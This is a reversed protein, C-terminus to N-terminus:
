DELESSSDLEDEATGKPLILPVLMVATIGGVLKGVIMPMIMEPQVGATFGLHDGFTFGASVSFAVNMVKGRYNMDKLNKFTPINNALTSLFGAAAVDNMGFKEGIKTLPKNLLKTIVYIMPFAGALVIGISGIIQFGESLSAMGPIIVIGTLEEAVSAALGATLVAIVIKGFVNFIKIIIDQIKWLGLAVILAFLASPILNRITTIMGFGGLLGGVLAGLPITIIGALMGTAVAKHDKKEVISLAVPINFTILPGMTTGLIIGSFVGAENTNALEMALSYGGMDCALFTTAFVSPDAGFFGYIPVIIPSLIKALVPALTIGGLMSVALPGMANFGEEFETGLGYRNGFIRDLAGLAMFFVMIIIIVRNIDM